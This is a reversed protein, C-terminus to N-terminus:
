PMCVQTSSPAESVGHEHAVLPVAGLPVDGIAVITGVAVDVPVSGTGTGVNGGVVIGDISGM